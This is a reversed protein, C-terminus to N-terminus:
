LVKREYEKGVEVMGANEMIKWVMPNNSTSYISYCGKNKAFALLTDIVVQKEEPTTATYGYLVDVFFCPIYKYDRTIKTILVVKLDRNENIAFWCQRKKNLLDEVLSINFKDVVDNTIGLATIAAYKIANWHEVIDKSSLRICKIM